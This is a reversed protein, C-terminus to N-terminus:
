NLEEEDEFKSDELEDDLSNVDLGDLELDLGNSQYQSIFAEIQAEDLLVRNAINCYPSNNKLLVNVNLRLGSKGKKLEVSTTKGRYVVDSVSTYGSEEKFWQSIDNMSIGEDCYFNSNSIKKFKVSM